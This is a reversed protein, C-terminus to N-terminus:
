LRPQAVASGVRAEMTQVSSVPVDPDVRRVAARLVPVLAAPEQEARVVLFMTTTGESGQAFPAYVVPTPIRQLPGYRVDAAVGVVTLRDPEYDDPVTGPPVLQRPPNVSLVKGMAEGNWYRRAMERSVIAVNAKPREDAPTFARGSVMPIGLAQ